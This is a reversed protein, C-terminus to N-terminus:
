AESKCAVDMDDTDTRPRKRTGVDEQMAEAPVSGSSKVSTAKLPAKSFCDAVIETPIAALALKFSADDAEVSAEKFGKRVLLAYSGLRSLQRTRLGLLGM